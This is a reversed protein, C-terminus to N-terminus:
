TTSESELQRTHKHRKQPTNYAEPFCSNDYFADKRTLILLISGMDFLCAGHEGGSSIM